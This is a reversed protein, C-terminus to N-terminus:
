VPTWSIIPHIIPRTPQIPANYLNQSKWCNWMLIQGVFLYCKWSIISWRIHVGVQFCWYVHRNYIWVISLCTCCHDKYILNLSYWEMRKSYLVAKTLYKTASILIFFHQTNFFFIVLRVVVLSLFLNKCTIDLKLYFCVYCTVYLLDYIALWLYRTVFLLWRVAFILHLLAM